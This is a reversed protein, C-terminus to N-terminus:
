LLGGDIAVFMRKVTKMDKFDEKEHYTGLGDVLFVPLLATQCTQARHM